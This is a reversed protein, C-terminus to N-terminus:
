RSDCRPTHPSHAACSSRGLMRDGLGGCGASSRRWLPSLARHPPHGVQDLGLSCLWDMRSPKKTASLGALREKVESGQRSQIQSVISHLFGSVAGFGMAKASKGIVFKWSRGSLM